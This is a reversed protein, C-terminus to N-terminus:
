GQPKPASPIGAEFTKNADTQQNGQIWLGIAGGCVLASLVLVGVPIWNRKVEDL